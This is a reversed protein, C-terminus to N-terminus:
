CSLCVFATGLLLRLLIIRDGSFYFCTGKIKLLFLTLIILYLVVCRLKVMSRYNEQLCPNQHKVVQTFEGPRHGHVKCLVSTNWLPHWWLCSFVGLADQNSICIWYIIQCVDTKGGPAFGRLYNCKEGQVQNATFWHCYVSIANLIILLNLHM